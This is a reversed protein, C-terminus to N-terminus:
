ASGAVEYDGEPTPALLIGLPKPEVPVIEPEHWTRAQEIVIAFVGSMKRIRHEKVLLQVLSRAKFDRGDILDSVRVAERIQQYIGFWLFPFFILFAFLVSAQINMATFNFILLAVIFTIPVAYLFSRRRDRPPNGPTLNVSRLSYQDILKGEDGELVLRANIKFSAFWDRLLPAETPTLLQRKMVLQM